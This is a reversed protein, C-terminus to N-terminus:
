LITHFYNTIINAGENIKNTFIKPNIKLECRNYLTIYYLIAIKKRILFIYLIM